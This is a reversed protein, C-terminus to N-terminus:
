RCEMEFWMTWGTAPNGGRGWEDALRAVILLGRGHQGDHRRAPKTWPGGQDDVEVRLRGDRIRIRVTFQGGPDRSRSHLIANAALESLCLAADDAEPRGDMVAALFRRAERAQEPIAPFARSWAASLAVAHGASRPRPSM